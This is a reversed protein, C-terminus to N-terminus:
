VSKSTFSISSLLFSTLDSPNFIRETYMPPPVGVESSSFFKSLTTLAAATSQRSYVTSAPLGSVMFESFSLIIASAPTVRM